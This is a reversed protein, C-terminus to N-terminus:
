GVDIGNDFRSGEVFPNRCSKAYSSAPRMVGVLGNEQKHNHLRFGREGVIQYLSNLINNSLPQAGLVDRAKNDRDAFDRNGDVPFLDFRQHLM